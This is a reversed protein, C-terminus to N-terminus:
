ILTESFYFNLLEGGPVEELAEDSERRVFLVTLALKLLQM